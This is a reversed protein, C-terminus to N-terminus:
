LWRESFTVLGSGSSLSVRAKGPALEFYESTTVVPAKIGNVTVLRSEMDIVVSESGTFSRNVQVLEGTDANTIRLYSQSAPTVEFRPRTPYNGGVEIENNAGQIPLRMTAGRGIPDPLLFELTTSGTYWLSSLETEGTLIAMRHIGPEDDLYLPRPSDKLLAAALEQRDAYTYRQPSLILRARVEISSHKVQQRMFVSGSRGPVDATVTELPPLLSRTYATKLWKTLDVGDYIM